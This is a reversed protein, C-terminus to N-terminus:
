ELGMDVVVVEDNTDLLIEVVSDATDDGDVDVDTVDVLIPEEVEVVATDLMVDLEDEIDMGVESIAANVDSSGDISELMMACSLVVVIVVGLPGVMTTVEWVPALRSMSPEVRVSTEIEPKSLSDAEALASTPAMAEIMSESREFTLM